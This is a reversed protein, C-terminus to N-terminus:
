NKAEEVLDNMDLDFGNLDQVKQLLETYQGPNLLKDILDEASVVSFKEQLEANKFNPDVCCAILLRNSYLDSDTEVEKQHTRKNWKAKQCSKRIEKNEAETISRLVFPVPFPKINVEVTVETQIENQLLFEQLKGM